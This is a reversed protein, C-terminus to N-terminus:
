DDHLADVAADADAAEADAGPPPTGDLGGDGCNGAVLQWETYDICRYTCSGAASNYACSDIQWGGFCSTGAQPPTMPCHVNQSRCVTSSRDATCVYRGDAACRRGPAEILVGCGGCANVICGDTTADASSVGADTDAADDPAPSSDAGKGVNSESSSHQGGCAILFSLGVVLAVTSCRSLRAHALGRLVADSPSRWADDM